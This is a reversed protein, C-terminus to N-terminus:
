ACLWSHGDRWSYYIQRPIDALMARLFSTERQNVDELKWALPCACRRKALLM